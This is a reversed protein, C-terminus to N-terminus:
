GLFKLIVEIVILGGAFAIVWKPKLKPAEKLEEDYRVLGAMGSPMRTKSDKAM